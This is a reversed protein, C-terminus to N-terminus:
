RLLTMRKTAVFGGAELRYLYVGSPLNVADFEVSSRGADVPADLLTAIEQGLLSFVKLRVRSREPVDFFIRTSPNFPNPSNQHLAFQEPTGRVTEVGTSVPDSWSVSAVQITGSSPQLTDAATVQVSAGNTALFIYSLTVGTSKRNLKRVRLAEHTGGPITM